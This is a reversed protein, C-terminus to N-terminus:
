SQSKTGNKGGRKRGKASKIEAKKVEIKKEEVEKPEEVKEKKPLDVLVVKAHSTYKKYPHAMGRSVPQWRKFVVGKDVMISKIQLDEEKLNLNNTANAIASKILKLMMDAGKKNMGGLEALAVPLSLRKVSEAVLRLKRPSIRLYNAEATINM